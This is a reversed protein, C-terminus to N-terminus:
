SVPVPQFIMAPVVDIDDYEVLEWASEDALLKRLLKNNISHGSKYASFAGILPHGLLYLDGIADLIKHRVCEDAYRMQDENLMHYNSLVIANKMSAGQVLGQERLSELDKMFGFTRARSITNKYSTTAFDIECKQNSNQIVPHDFDIEFSVKFGDYPELKAWIDGEQVMVTKKIRMFKKPVFQDQIGASEMLFVFPHASGDMIPVEAATVDVYANDVGLGAFASMLHEVTSVTAGNKELTTSMTTLSVNEVRAPIEVVPNLDVRRFIIGTNPPAPILKLHIKVGTHLGVGTGSIINTLTRQRIM